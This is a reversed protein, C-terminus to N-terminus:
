KSNARAVVVLSLGKWPLLGDMRRWIWVSKDFLKLTLKNIRGTRLVKSYLWWAPKSIKNLQHVQEVTFGNAELLGRLEVEAFRRKHGLTQDVKGFTLLCRDKM